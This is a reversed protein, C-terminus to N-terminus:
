YATSAGEISVITFGPAARTEQHGPHYMDMHVNVKGPAAAGCDVVYHDVISKYVGAGVNGARFYQPTTGDECRLRALYARQGLPGQARVPNDNTGLPNKEAKIIAKALKKKSLMPGGRLMLELDNKASATSPASLITIALAIYHLKQM